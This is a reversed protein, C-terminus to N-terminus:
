QGQAAGAGDAGKARHKVEHRPLTSKYRALKADDHKYVRRAILRLHAAERIVAQAVSDTATTTAHRNTAAQVHAHDAGELAHVLHELDHVGHSDLGVKKADAPHDHAAELLALALAKVETTSGPSAHMGVGFAHQLAADSPFAIKVDDRVDSAVHMIAARAEAVHVGAAVKATLKSTRAADGAELADIDKAFQELEHPALRKQFEKDRADEKAAEYVRRADLAISATDHHRSTSM